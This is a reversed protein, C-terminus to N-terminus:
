CRAPFLSCAVALDSEDQSSLGELTLSESSKTEESETEESESDTVDGLWSIGTTIVQGSVPNGVFTIFKTNIICHNCRHSAVNRWGRNINDNIPYINNISLCVTFNKTVTNISSDLLPSKATLGFGPISKDGM